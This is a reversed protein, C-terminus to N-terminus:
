SLDFKRRENVYSILGDKDLHYHYIHDSGMINGWSRRAARGDIINIVSKFGEYAILDAAQLALFQKTNGFTLPGLVGDLNLEEKFHAYHETIPARVFNNEDYICAVTESKPIKSHKVIVEM